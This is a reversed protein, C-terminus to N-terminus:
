CEGDVNGNAAMKKQDVDTTATCKRNLEGEQSVVSLVGFAKQFM